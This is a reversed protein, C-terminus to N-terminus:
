DIDLRPDGEFVVMASGGGVHSGIVPGVRGETIKMDPYHTKLASKLEHYYDSKTTYWLYTPLGKGHKHMKDIVYQVAAKTGKVRNEVALKGKSNALIIPKIKLLTGLTAKFGSIRGGRKMYSLDDVYFWSQTNDRMEKVRKIAEDTTAGSDRLRILEDILMGYGVSATMGDIVFVQRDKLDKNLINAAEVCNDCTASLGSSLPMHIVDGSKETEIIKEFHAKAEIPNVAVTTPLSGTKIAEYFGDFQKDNDFHEAVEEGKLIHKMVVCYVDHKALYSKNLDCSSDTSIAFHKDM